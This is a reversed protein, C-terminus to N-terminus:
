KNVRKDFVEIKFKTANEKKWLRNAGKPRHKENCNMIIYEDPYKKADGQFKLLNYTIMNSTLGLLEAFEPQKIWEKSKM